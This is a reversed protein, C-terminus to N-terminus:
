TKRGLVRVGVRQTVRGCGGAPRLGPIVEGLSVPNSGKPPGWLVHTGETVAGGANEQPRGTVPMLRWFQSDRPFPCTVHGEPDQHGACPRVGVLPGLSTQQIFSLTLFHRFSLPPGLACVRTRRAERLGALAHPSPPCSTQPGPSMLFPPCGVNRRREVSHCNLGAFRERPCPPWPAVQHCNIERGNQLFHNKECYLITVM